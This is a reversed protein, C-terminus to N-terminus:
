HALALESMAAVFDDAAFAPALDDVGSVINSKSALTGAVLGDLLVSSALTAARVMAASASVGASASGRSVDESDGASVLGVASFARLSVTWVERAATALSLLAITVVLGEALELGVAPLGMSDGCNSHSRSDFLICNTQRRVWISTSHADMSLGKVRMLVVIGQM